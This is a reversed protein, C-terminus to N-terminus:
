TVDNVNNQLILIKTDKFNAKVNALIYEVGFKSQSGSIIM